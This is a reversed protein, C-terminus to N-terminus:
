RGPPGVPRRYAYLPRVPWYDGAGSRRDGAVIWSPREDTRAHQGVTIQERLDGPELGLTSLDGADVLLVQRAKGPLGDSHLDGELGRDVLAKVDTVPRPRSGHATMQFLAVVQGRTANSELTVAREGERPGRLLRVAQRPDGPAAPQGRRCRPVGQPDRGPVM